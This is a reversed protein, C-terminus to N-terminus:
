EEGNGKMGEGMGGWYGKLCMCVYMCLYVFRIVCMCMSVCVDMKYM